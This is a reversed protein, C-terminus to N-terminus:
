PKTGDTLEQVYEEHAALEDASARIVLPSERSLKLFRPQEYIEEPEELEGLLSNKSELMRLYVEALLQSDLLAGHKDRDTRDVGYKSCLADLSVQGSKHIEKALAMTDTVQCLDAMRETRNARQLEADIFQIDFAANHMFVEHGRIFDIFANAIESFRPENVLDDHTFGHILSAEADIDREPNLLQHFEENTHMGDRVVTAGLEIIRHGASADIGTTETDLFIQIVIYVTENLNLSRWSTARLLQQM